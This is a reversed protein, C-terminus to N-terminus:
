RYHWELVKNVFTARNATWFTIFGSRVTGNMEKLVQKLIASREIDPDELHDGKKLNVRWLGAYMDTSM